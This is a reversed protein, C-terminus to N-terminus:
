DGERIPEFNFPWILLYRELEGITASAVIGQKRQKEDTQAVILPASPPQVPPEGPAVPLPAPLAPDPMLGIIEGPNVIVGIINETVVLCRVGMLRGKPKTSPPDAPGAGHEAETDEITKKPPM